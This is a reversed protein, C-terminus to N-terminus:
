EIEGEEAVAGDSARQAIQERAIAIDKSALAVDGERDGADRAAARSPPRVSVSEIWSYGRASFTTVHM